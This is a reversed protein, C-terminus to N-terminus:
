GFDHDRYRADRDRFGMASNLDAHQDPENMERLLRKRFEDMEVEPTIPKFEPKIVPKLYQYTHRWGYLMADCCHDDCRGDPVQKEPSRIDWVLGMWEDALADAEHGVLKIKSTQLDDSMINIFKVKDVKTAARLPMDFRSRLENFVNTNAGDIVYEDIPWRDELSRRYAEVEDLGMKLQKHAKVVYLCRDENTPDYGMVVFAMPDPSFGVDIGCIWRYSSVEGPLKAIRNLRDTFKYCRADPDDTWKGLWQQQFTPTQLFGPDEQKFRAIEDEFQQKMFPNDLATWHHVSWGPHKLQKTASDVQRTVVDYFFGRSPAPVGLMLLTGKDDALTPQLGERIMRLLNSSWYQAEDIVVLKNKNGVMTRIQNKNADGGAIKIVSGNPFSYTLSSLNLHVDIGLQRIIVEFIDKIIIDRAKARSSAM